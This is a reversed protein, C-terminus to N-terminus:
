LNLAGRAKKTVSTEGKDRRVSRTRNKKYGYLNHKPEVEFHKGAHKVFKFRTAQDMPIM